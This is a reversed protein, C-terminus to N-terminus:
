GNSAGPTGAPYARGRWELRGRGHSRFSAWLVAAYLFRGPVAYGALRASFGGRRLEMAFGVFMGLIIGFFVAVARQQSGRSLWLLGPVLLALFIPGVARLIEQAVANGTGGVLRYLNKKWGEWMASFSRYMRVRVIGQGSAFWIKYGREKVRTALAVDELLDGAVSAHGGVAEYADRRILLFQGNAAAVTKASDNVDAFSYFHALRVFVYPLLAKEYWNLLIQEPSFSVLAAGQQKAIELAKRAADVEHVADADTFLLWDGSSARAGQWVAHNKGTWGAPLEEAELLRLNAIEGTLGRVIGATHDSSHDNVVIIEAIEAQRALSRLCEAIVAEENRAPVIATLRQTQSDIQTM